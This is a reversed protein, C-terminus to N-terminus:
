MASMVRELKPRCPAVAYAQGRRSKALRYARPAHLAVHKVDHGVRCAALHEVELASSITLLEHGVVVGLTLAFYLRELEGAVGAIGGLLLDFLM